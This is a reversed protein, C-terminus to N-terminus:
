YILAPENKLGTYKTLEIGAHGIFMKASVKLPVKNEDDSFWALISDEGEFVDNDPMVPRFAISKFKGAKVKLEELKYVVVQFDYFEDQLFAPITLTDGVALQNFDLTRMWLFGSIMGHTLHKTKFLVPDKYKGSDFDLTTVKIISDEPIFETYEKKRYRGEKLNRTSLVPSLNTTDIYSQWHDDVDAVWKVIGKTEGYVDVRYCGKGKIQYNRESITYSGKGVTFIGYTAKYTLSEGPKFSSYREGATNEVQGFVSSLFLVGIHLFFSNM